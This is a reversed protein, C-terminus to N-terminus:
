INLLFRFSLKENYYNPPRGGRDDDLYIKFLTAPSVLNELSESCKGYRISAIKNSRMFSDM